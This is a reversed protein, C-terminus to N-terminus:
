SLNSQQCSALGYTHRLSPSTTRRSNNPSCRKKASKTLFRVIKGQAPPVNSALLPWAFQDRPDIDVHERTDFDSAPAPTGPPHPLKKAPCALAHTHTPLIRSLRRARLIFRTSTTIVAPNIFFYFKGRPTHTTTTNAPPAIPTIPSHIHTHIPLLHPPFTSTPRLAPPQTTTRQHKLENGLAERCAEGPVKAEAPSGHQSDAIEPPNIQRRRSPRSAPSVIPRCDLLLTERHQLVHGLHRRGATGRTDRRTTNPPWAVVSIRLLIVADADAELVSNLVRCGPRSLRVLAVGTIIHHLSHTVPVCALLAELRYVCHHAQLVSARACRLVAWVGTSALPKSTHPLTSNVGRDARPLTGATKPTLIPIRCAVGSAAYWECRQCIVVGDVCAAASRHPGLLM